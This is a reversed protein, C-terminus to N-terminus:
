KAKVSFSVQTNDVAVLKVEYTTGATMNFSPWIVVEHVDGEEITIRDDLKVEEINKRGIQVAEPDIDVGIIQLDSRNAVESSLYGSGCGLDLCLGDTIQYDDIIQAAISPYVDKFVERAFRDFRAAETEPQNDSHCNVLSLIMLWVIPVIDHYIKIRKKRQVM